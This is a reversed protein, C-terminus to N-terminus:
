EATEETITDITEEVVEVEVEVEEVLIKSKEAKVAAAAQREAEEQSRAVVVTVQLTVEPHLSVRLNYSGLSKIPMDLAIQRREVTFGALKISEAVDRGSVSGYLQGGEGAQRIILVKLGEMRVAVTEAESKRKLNNAELQTRQKEFFAMNDKNARLAKKQPLLYNRAYGSRVNVVDGMQGLHEIRELLIIEM